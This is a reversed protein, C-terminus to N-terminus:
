APVDGNEFDALIQQTERESAERSWRNLDAWEEDTFGVDEGSRSARYARLAALRRRIAERSFDPHAHLLLGNHVADIDVEAPEGLAQSLEEPLVISGNPGKHVTLRM